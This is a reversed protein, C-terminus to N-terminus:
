LAVSGKSRNIDIMGGATNSKKKKNKAAPASPFGSDEDENSPSSLIEVDSDTQEGNLKKILADLARFGENEDEGEATLSEMPDLPEPTSISNVGSTKAIATNLLKAAQSLLDGIVPDVKKSLQLTKSTIGQMIKVPDNAIGALEDDSPEPAPQEPKPALPAEQPPLPPQAPPMGQMPPAPPMGMMSPDMPMPPIGGQMPPPAMMGMLMAPDFPPMGGQMPMPPAGGMMPPPASGLLAQLMMPDLPPMNGIM